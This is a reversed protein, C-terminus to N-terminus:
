GLPYRHPNAEALRKGIWVTLMEGRSHSYSRPLSILLPHNVCLASPFYPRNLFPKIRLSTPKRHPAFALRGSASWAGRRGPNRELVATLGIQSLRDYPPHRPRDLPRGLDHVVLPFLEQFGRGDQGVM